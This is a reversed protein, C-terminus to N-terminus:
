TGHQLLGKAELIVAERDGSQLADIATKGGFDPSQSLLFSLVVFPANPEFLALVESLGAVIDGDKFQFAPFVRDGGKPLAL